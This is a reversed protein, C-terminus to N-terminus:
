LELGEGIIIEKQKSMKRFGNKLSLKPFSIRLKGKDSFRKMEGENRFIIEMSYQTQPQSDGASVTPHPHLNMDGGFGM